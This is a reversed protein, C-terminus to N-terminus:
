RQGKFSIVISATDKSHVTVECVTDQFSVNKFRVQYKGPSLMIPKEFPTTDKYQDNIYVEAWPTALCNLYGVNDFFNGTVASERFPLVTITQTIPDFSPHVFLISHKGAALILSKSLPTEGIFKNDVYVKAWPTSTLMVTGSDAATQNTINSSVVKPKATQSKQIPKNVSQVSTNKNTKWNSDMTISASNSDINLRAKTQIIHKSDSIRNPFLLILAIILAAVCSLIFVTRKPSLPHWRSVDIFINSDKKDFANLADKSSAFRNQKKPAM